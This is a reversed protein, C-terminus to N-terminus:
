GLKLKLFNQIALISYSASTLLAKKLWCATDAHNVWSKISAQLRFVKRILLDLTSVGSASSLAALSGPSRGGDGVLELDVQRVGAAADEAHCVGAGVGVFRLQLVDCKNM